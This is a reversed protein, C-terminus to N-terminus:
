RLSRRDAVQALRLTGAAAVSGFALGLLGTSLLKTLPLMNDGSMFRLASLIAPLAFATVFGGGFGFRVWRIESLQRGRFAYIIFMSFAAGAAGFLVAGPVALHLPELWAPQGHPDFINALTALTMVGLFWAGGWVFANGAVARIRRIANNIITRVQSLSTIRPRLWRSGWLYIDVVGRSAALGGRWTISRAEIQVPTAIVL